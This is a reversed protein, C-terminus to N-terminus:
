RRTDLTPDAKYTVRQLTVLRRNSVNRVRYSDESTGFERTGEFLNGSRRWHLASHCAGRNELALYRRLGM